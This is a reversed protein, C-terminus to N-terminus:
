FNPAFRVPPRLTGDSELRTPRFCSCFRVATRGPEECCRFVAGFAPPTWVALRWIITAGLARGFGGAANEVNAVCYDVDYRRFVAPLAKKLIARGPHGVVDGVLLINM